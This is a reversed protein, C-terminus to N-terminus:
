IQEVWATPPVAAEASERSLHWSLTFPTDDEPPTTMVASPLMRVRWTWTRPVLVLGLGDEGVQARHDPFAREAAEVDQASYPGGSWSPCGSIMEAREADYPWRGQWFQASALHEAAM